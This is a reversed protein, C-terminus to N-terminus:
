LLLEVASDVATQITADSAGEINEKTFAANQALLVWMLSRAMGDVNGLTSKAWAERKAHDTTGASEVRITEALIAVATMVKNLLPINTTLDHLEEYTAM